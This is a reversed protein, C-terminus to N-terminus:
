QTFRKEFRVSFQWQIPHDTLFIPNPQNGLKKMKHHACDYPERTNVYGFCLFVLVLLSPAQLGQLFNFMDQIPPGQMLFIVKPFEDLFAM